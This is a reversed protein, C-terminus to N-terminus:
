IAPLYLCDVLFGLVLLVIRSFPLLDVELMLTLLEWEGTFNHFNNLCAHLAEPFPGLPLYCISFCINLFVKGGFNTLFALIYLGQVFVM